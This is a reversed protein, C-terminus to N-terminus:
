RNPAVQQPSVRKSKLPTRWETPWPEFVMAAGAKPPLGTVVEAKLDEFTTTGTPGASDAPPTMLFDQAQASAAFVTGLAVTASVAFLHVARM